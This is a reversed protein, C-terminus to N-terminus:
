FNMNGKSSCKTENNKKEMRGGLAHFEKSDSVLKAFKYRFLKSTKRKERQCERMKEILFRYNEDQSHSRAFIENILM